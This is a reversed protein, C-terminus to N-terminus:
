LNTWAEEKTLFQDKVAVYCCNRGSDKAKYLAKDSINLIEEMTLCDKSGEYIYLGISITLYDSISSGEHMIKADKLNAMIKDAVTLTGNMDVSDLFVIFEEGGFRFAKDGERSLSNRIIRSVNKLCADGEIHGYLDNYAKFFDIDIALLSISSAQRRSRIMADELITSMHGKNFM